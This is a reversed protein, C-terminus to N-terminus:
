WCSWRASSGCRFTSGGNGARMAVDWWGRAICKVEVVGGEGSGYGEGDKETEECDRVDEERNEM